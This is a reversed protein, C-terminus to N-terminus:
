PTFYMGGSLERMEVRNDDSDLPIVEGWEVSSKSQASGALSPLILLCFLITKKM